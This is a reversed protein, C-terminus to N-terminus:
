REDFKSLTEIELKLEDNEKMITSIKQELENIVGVKGRYHYYFQVKDGLYKIKETAEENEKMIDAIKENAIELLSKDVDFKSTEYLSQGRKWGEIFISLQSELEIIKKEGNDFKLDREELAQRLHTRWWFPARDQSDPYWKGDFPEEGCLFKVIQQLKDPEVM